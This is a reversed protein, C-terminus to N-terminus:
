EVTWVALEYGDPDQFQFRKGGPFSFIDKLITGGARIVQDRTAQLDDAYIVVLISGNIPDGLTFGGDVYKGGFATYAPGYDMFEWGFSTSYFAKARELDSSVFELYQIQQNVFKNETSSNSM